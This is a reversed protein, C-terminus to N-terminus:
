KYNDPNLFYTITRFSYFLGHTIMLLFLLKSIKSKFDCNKYIVTATMLSLIAIFISFNISRIQLNYNIVSYYASILVAIGTYIFHWKKLSYEKYYKVTGIYIAVAAGLSFFNNLIIAFYGLFTTNRFYGTIYSLLYFLSSLTWWFLSSKEEKEKISTYQLFLILSEIGVIFTSLVIIFYMDINMNEEELM